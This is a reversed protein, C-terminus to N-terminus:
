APVRRPPCQALDRYATVAEEIATLADERRGLDALRSSQNNLSTALSPLYAEPLAEALDRRITVAEEIATLADERRGM